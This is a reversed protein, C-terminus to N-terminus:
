LKRRYLDAQLWHKHVEDGYSNVGDYDPNTGAGRLPDANGGLNLNSYNNAEWDKATIYSFNVKFAVKNNFAKAYRITGDVFPTTAKSRSSEHMVGTKVNASLGQYLFPSKSNMLILGNIANPGYLASAAGPLIEVSEVDLESMGIINDLPFNLGPAQNDMGDIMQVTRPNGTSGFGRMNISKFLVGQTAMDIGKLNALADYFNTSPTERIGRIDMKEVAVPSKLVNEEVRSASVVIENGLVVQESLQVEFHSQGGEVEVEQTLFGVSSVVLTFPPPSNVSFSFAGKSDTITGIVKGKVQVSVGVLPEKSTAENVVGEIKTQAFSSSAFLLMGIMSGWALRLLLEM